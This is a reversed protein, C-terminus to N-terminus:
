FVNLEEETPIRYHNWTTMGGEGAWKSGRFWTKIKGNEAWSAFNRKDWEHNEYEKVWVPDGDELEPLPMVPEPPVDGIRACWCPSSFRTTAQRFEVRISEKGYPRDRYGGVWYLGPEVETVKKWVPNTM